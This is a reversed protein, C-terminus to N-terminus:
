YRPLVGKVVEYFYPTGFGLAAAFIYEEVPIGALLLGSLNELMWIKEIVNPDIMLLVQFVFFTIFVSVFSSFFMHVSLNKHRAFIVLGVFVPPLIHAVISNVKLLDVLVTFAAVTVLLGFLAHWPNPKHISYGIPKGFVDSVSALTGGFFFGYLFDEFPLERGFLYPPHWYDNLAYVQGIIIAGFGFISGIILMEKYQKTKILVILWFVFYVLVGTLYINQIFFDFM